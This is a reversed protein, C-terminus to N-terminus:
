SHRCTNVNPGLLTKKDGKKVVQVRNVTGKIWLTGKRLKDRTHHHLFHVSFHVSFHVLCFCSWFVPGTGTLLVSTNGIEHCAEYKKELSLMEVEHAFAASNKKEFM